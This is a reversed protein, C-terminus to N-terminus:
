TGLIQDFVNYFPTACGRRLGMFNQGSFLCKLVEVHGSNKLKTGRLDHKLLLPVVVLNVSGFCGCIFAKFINLVYCFMPKWGRM